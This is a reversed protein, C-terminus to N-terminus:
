WHKTCVNCHCSLRKLDHFLSDCVEACMQNVKVLNVHFHFSIAAQYVVTSVLSYFRDSQYVWNQCFECKENPDKTGMISNEQVCNTETDATRGQVM